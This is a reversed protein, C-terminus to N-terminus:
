SILSRSWCFSFQDLALWSSSPSLWLLLSRRPSAVGSSSFESRRQSILSSISSSLFAMLPFVSQLKSLITLVISEGKVAVTRSHGTGDFNQKGWSSSNSLSLSKKSWRLVKLVVSPRWCDRSSISRQEKGVVKLPAALSYNVFNDVDDMLLKSCNPLAKKHWKTPPCHGFRGASWKSVMLCLSFSVKLNYMFHKVWSVRSTFLASSLTCNVVKLTPNFDLFNMTESAFFGGLVIASINRFAYFYM